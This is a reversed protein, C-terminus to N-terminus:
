ELHMRVLNEAHYHNLRDIAPKRDKFPYGFLDLAKQSPWIWAVPSYLYARRILPLLFCFPGDIM